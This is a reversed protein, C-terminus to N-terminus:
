IQSIIREYEEKELDGNFSIVYQMKNQIEHLTNIEKNLKDKKDEFRFKAGLGTLVGSAISLIPVVMPPITLSSV